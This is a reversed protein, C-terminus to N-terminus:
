EIEIDVIKTNDKISKLLTPSKMKLLLLKTNNYNQNIKQVVQKMMQEAINNELDRNGETM